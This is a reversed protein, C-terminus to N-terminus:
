KMYTIAPVPHSYYTMILISSIVNIMKFNCYM